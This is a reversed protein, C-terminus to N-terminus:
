EEFFGLRQMTEQRHTNLEQLSPRNLKGCDILAALFLNDLNVLENLMAMTASSVAIMATSNGINKKLIESVQVGTAFLVGNVLDQVKHSWGVYGFSSGSEIAIELQQREPLILFKSLSTIRNQFYFAQPAWKNATESKQNLFRFEVWSSFDLFNHLANTAKAEKISQGFLSFLRSVPERVFTLCSTEQPFVSLPMHGTQYPWAIKSSSEDVSVHFSGSHDIAGETLYAFPFGTIQEITSRLSNGATKPIHVFALQKHPLRQLSSQLKSAIQLLYEPSQRLSKLYVVQDVVGDFAAIWADVEGVVPERDLLGRITNSVLHNQSESTM